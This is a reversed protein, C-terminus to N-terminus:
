SIPSQTPINQPNDYPPATYTEVLNFIITKYVPNEDYAGSGDTCKVDYYLKDGKVQYSGKFFYNNYDTCNKEYVTFGQYLEFLIFVDNIEGDATYTGTSESGIKSVINLTIDPNSSVWKGYPIPYYYAHFCSSLVFIMLLSVTLQFFKKM